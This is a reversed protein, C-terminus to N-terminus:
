MTTACTRATPHHAELLLILVARWQLVPDAGTEVATASWMRPVGLYEAAAMSKGNKLPQPVATPSPWPPPCRPHILAECLALAQASFARVEPICSRLGQLCM